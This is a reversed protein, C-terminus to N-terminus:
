PQRPRSLAGCLKKKRSHLHANVAKTAKLLEDVWDGQWELYRVANDENAENDLKYLLCYAEFSRKRLAGKPRRDPATYTRLLSKLLNYTEEMEGEEDKVQDEISVNTETDGGTHGDVDIPNDVAVEAIATADNVSCSTINTSQLATGETLHYEASSRLISVEGMEYAEYTPRGLEEEVGDKFASLGGGSLPKRPNGQPRPFVCNMAKADPPPKAAIQFARQEISIPLPRVALNDTTSPSESKLLQKPLAPHSQKPLRILGTGSESFIDGCRSVKKAVRWPNSQM